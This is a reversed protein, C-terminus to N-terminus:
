IFIQEYEEDIFVEQNRKLLYIDKLYKYTPKIDLLRGDELKKKWMSCRWELDDKTMVEPM